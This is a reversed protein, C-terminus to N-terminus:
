LIAVLVRSETVIIINKGVASSRVAFALSSHNSGFQRILEQALVQQVEACPLVGAFQENVSQCHEVLSGEERGSSHQLCAYVISYCILFQYM